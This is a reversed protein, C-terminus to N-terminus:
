EDPESRTITIHYPASVSAKLSRAAETVDAASESLRSAAGDFDLQNTIVELQTEMHELLEVIRPTGDSSGLEGGGSRVNGRPIKALLTVCAQDLDHLVAIDWSQLTTVCFHAVISAGLALMTISFANALGPIVLQSLRATLVAADSTEKLAQSFGSIAHSMGWATGIFGLVPLIWIYAKTVSYNNDLAGADLGALAPVSEHLLTPTEQSDRLLQARRGARLRLPIQPLADLSVAQLQLVAVKEQSVRFCRFFVLLLVWGFVGLVLEPVVRDAAGGNSFIVGIVPVASLTGQFARLATLCLEFSSAAWLVAALLYSLKTSTM